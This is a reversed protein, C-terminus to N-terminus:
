DRLELLTLYATRPVSALRVALVAIDRGRCGARVRCRPPQGQIWGGCCSTRARRGAAKGARAIAAGADSLDYRYGRKRVHIQIADGVTYTLGTDLDFESREGMAQQASDFATRCRALSGGVDDMGSTDSPADGVFDGRM